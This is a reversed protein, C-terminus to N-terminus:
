SQSRNELNTTQTDVDLETEREADRDLYRGGFLAVAIYLLLAKM